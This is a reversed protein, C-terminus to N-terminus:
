AAAAPEGGSSARTHRASGRGKFCLGIVIWIVLAAAAGGAMLRWIPDDFRSPASLRQDFGPIESAVRPTWEDRSTFTQVTGDPRVIFLGQRSEGVVFGDQARYAIVKDVLRSGRYALFVSGDGVDNGFLAFQGGTPIHYDSRSLGVLVLTIVVAVAWYVAKRM